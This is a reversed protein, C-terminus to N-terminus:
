NDNHQTNHRAKGIWGLSTAMPPTMAVGTATVEAQGTGVATSSSASVVRAQGLVSGPASTHERDLGSVAQQGQSSRFVELVRTLTSQKRSPKDRRKDARAHLAYPAMTAHKASLRSTDTLMATVRHPSSSRPTAAPPTNHTARHAAPRTAPQRTTSMPPAAAATSASAPATPTVTPATTAQATPAYTTASAAHTSMGALGAAEPPTSVGGSHSIAIRAADAAAPDMPTYLSSLTPVAHEIADAWPGVLWDNILQQEMEARAAPDKIEATQASIAAIAQAGEKHLVPLLDLYDAMVAANDALIEVETACTTITARARSFVEGECGALVGAQTLDRQATRLLRAINRWAAAAAQPQTSDTLAFGLSLSVMSDGGSLAPTTLSLTRTPTAPRAPFIVADSPVFGGDDAIDIGRASLREQGTLAQGTARLGARIWQMKAVVDGLVQHASGADGVLLGQHMGALEALGPVTSYSGNIPASHACAQAQECATVANEAATIAEAIAAPDCTFTM